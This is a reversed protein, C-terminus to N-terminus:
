DIKLLEKRPFALTEDEAAAPDAAIKEPPPAALTPPLPTVDFRVPGPLPYRRRDVIDAVARADDDPLDSLSLDARMRRVRASSVKWAARAEALIDTEADSSLTVFACAARRPAPEPTPDFGIASYPFCLALALPIAMVAVLSYIEYRLPRRPRALQESM